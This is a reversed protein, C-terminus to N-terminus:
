PGKWGWDKTIPTDGEVRIMGRLGPCLTMRLSGEEKFDGDVEGERKPLDVYSLPNPTESNRAGSM